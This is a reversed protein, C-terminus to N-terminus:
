LFGPPFGGSPGLRRGRRSPGPMQNIDPLPGYPDFRPRPLGPGRRPNIEGPVFPLNPFLDNHGGLIIFLVHLVIPM